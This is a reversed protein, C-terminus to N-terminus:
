RGREEEGAGGVTGGLGGRSEGKEGSKQSVSGRGPTEGLFLAASSHSKSGSRAYGRREAEEERGGGGRGGEGKGGAGVVGKGSGRVRAM